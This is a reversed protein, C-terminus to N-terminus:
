NVADYVTTVVRLAEALDTPGRFRLEKGALGEMGRVFASLLRRKAEGRPMRDEVPGSNAKM